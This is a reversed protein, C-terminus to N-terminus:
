EETCFHSWKLKLDRALFSKQTLLKRQFQDCLQVGYFKLDIKERGKKDASGDVVVEASTVVTGSVVVLASTM